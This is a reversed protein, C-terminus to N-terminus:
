PLGLLQHVFPVVFARRKYQIYFGQQSVQHCEWYLLSTLGLPVVHEPLQTCHAAHGACNEGDLEKRRCLPTVHSSVAPGCSQMATM